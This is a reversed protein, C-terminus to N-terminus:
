RMILPLFLLLGSEYAGIDSYAVGNANGDLPRRVGRQDFQPDGGVYGEPFYKVQDIAPSGFQLSLTRTLGGHFGLSGFLPDTNSASHNEAGFGCSTGSDINNGDNSILGACNQGGGSTGAIISNRINATGDTLIITGASPDTSNTVNESFTSNLISMGSDDNGAIAGGITASNGVFTSNTVTISGGMFGVAGGAQSSNDIFTSDHINLTNAGTSMSYVAGGASFATNGVFECQYIALTGQNLIAGGAGPDEFLIMEAHGDILNLNMLTIVASSPINFIRYLDNGSVTIRRNSPGAILFDATAAFAPLPSQLLITGAPATFNIVVHGTALNALQIAERLTCDEVTCIGASGPDDLSNVTITVGAAAAPQISLPSYFSLVLVLACLGLSIKKLAFTNM